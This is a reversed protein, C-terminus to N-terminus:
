LTPCSKSVSSASRLYVPECIYMGLRKRSRVLCLRMTHIFISGVLSVHLVGPPIQPNWSRSCNGSVRQRSDWSEPCDTTLNCFETRKSSLPWGAEKGELADLVRSLKLPCSFDPLSLGLVLLPGILWRSYSSPYQMPQSLHSDLSGM